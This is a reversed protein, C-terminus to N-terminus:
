DIPTNALKKARKEIFNKDTWDNKTSKKEESLLSNDHLISIESKDEQPHIVNLKNKYNLVDFEHAPIVATSTLIWIECIDFVALFLLLITGLIHTYGLNRAQGITKFGYFM